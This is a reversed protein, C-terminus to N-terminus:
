VKAEPTPKVYNAFHLNEGDQSYYEDCENKIKQLNHQYEAITMFGNDKCIIDDQDENNINNDDTSVNITRNVFLKDIRDM